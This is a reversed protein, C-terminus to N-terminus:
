WRPRTFVTAVGRLANNLWSGLKVWVDHCNEWEWATPEGQSCNGGRGGVINELLSICFAKLARGTRRM